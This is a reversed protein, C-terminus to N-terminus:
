GFSQENYEEWESGPDSEEVEEDEEDESDDDSDDARTSKSNDKLFLAIEKVWKEVQKKENSTLDKIEPSPQIDTDSIIMSVPFGSGIQARLKTPLKILVSGIMEFGRSKALMSSAQNQTLTCIFAWSNIIDTRTTEPRLCMLISLKRLSETCKLQEYSKKYCKIAEAFCQPTDIGYNYCDGLHDWLCPNKQADKLMQQFRAEREIKDKWRSCLDDAVHGDKVADEIMAKIDVAPYVRGRIRQKTVPSVLTKKKMSKKYQKWASLEYVKGDSAVVPETPVELTLPCIPLQMQVSKPRRGEKAKGSSRLRKSGISCSSAEAM